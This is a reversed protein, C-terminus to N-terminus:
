ADVALLLGPVPDAWDPHAPVAQGVAAMLGIILAAALLTGAAIRLWTPPRRVVVIRSGAKPLHRPATATM